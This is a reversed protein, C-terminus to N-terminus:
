IPYLTGRLGGYGWGRSVSLGACDQPGPSFLCMHLAGGMRGLATAGFLEAEINLPKSLLALSSYIRGLEAAAEWSGLSPRAPHPGPSLLIGAPAPSFRCWSDRTLHIRSAQGGPFGPTWGAPPSLPGMTPGKGLNFAMLRQGGM